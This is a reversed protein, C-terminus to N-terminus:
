NNRILRGAPAYGAHLDDIAKQPVTPEFIKSWVPDPAIVAALADATALAVEDDIDQPQEENHHYMRGADLVAIPGFRDQCGQDGAERSQLEDPRIPAVRATTIDM